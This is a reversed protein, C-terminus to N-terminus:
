SSEVWEPLLRELHRLITQACHRYVARDAGVPDDLDTDGCLLRPAPGINPYRRALAHLHSHTMVIVDDAAMLLQASVPRSTHGRLDAGLEEAAAISEESAPSGEWAAVGASLIWFGRAPLDDVHCHLQEALLKKALAEALPSRCTNGTCIFLIIRAALRQIEAVNFAGPHVLQWSHDDVRIVTAANGVPREGANVILGVEAGLVDTAAQAQPCQTDAVCVPGLEAIAPIVLDFLPHDPCRFRQWNTSTAPSPLELVLPAPWARLMLRQAIRSVIGGRATVDEPGWALLASAALNVAVGAKWAALYGNDGPLVAVAGAALTQRTSEVFESPDVTPNWDIVTPM